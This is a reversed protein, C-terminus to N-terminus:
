DAAVPNLGEDETLSRYAFCQAGTCLGYFLVVFVIILQFTLYWYHYMANMMEQTRVNVAAHYAARQAATAHLPPFAIGKFVFGFILAFELIVFPGLTALLIAFMRWFNRLGLTWGRALAFGEEESAVVPVLLFTLRVFSYFFGCWLTVVALFTLIATVIGFATNGVAKSLAGMLFAIFLGGLMAAIWGLIMVVFLLLASGILRWVPKGLEFYFWVPGKHRGLALKAIGIVQVIILVFAVLYFLLLLPWLERLSSYDRAAMQASLATMQQRMLLSPLWMLLMAPWMVGLIKLFDGFAFRYAQAITAGVPIKAM